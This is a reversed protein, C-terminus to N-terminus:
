NVTIEAFGLFLIISFSSLFVFLLLLYSQDIITVSFLYCLHAFTLFSLLHLTPVLCLQMEVNDREWGPIVQYNLQTLNLLSLNGNFTLLVCPSWIFILKTEWPNFFFLCSLKIAHKEFGGGLNKGIQWSM